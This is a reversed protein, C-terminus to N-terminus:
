VEPIHEVIEEREKRTRWPRCQLVTRIGLTGIRGRCSPTIWPKTQGIDRNKSISTWSIIPIGHELYIIPVNVIADDTLTHYGSSCAQFSFSELTNHHVQLSVLESLTLPSRGKQTIFRIAQEPTMNATEMELEVGFIWYPHFHPIDVIDTVKNLNLYAQGPRGGFKIFGIQRSIGMCNKPIVPLIPINHYVLDLEIARLIVKRKIERLFSVQKESEEETVLKELTWVMIEHLRKLKKYEITDKIKRHM